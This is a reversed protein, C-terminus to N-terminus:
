QGAIEAAIQNAITAASGSSANCTGVDIAVNNTVSLVRECRSDPRNDNRITTTAVLMGDNNTVKGVQVPARGINYRECTSWRKESEALFRVADGATAFLVVAQDASLPDGSDGPTRLLQDRVTTSGSGAYAQAEAAGAIGVCAVKDEPADPPVTIDAALATSTEAVTMGTASVAINIEAPSLLLGDLTAKSVPPPSASTIASASASPSTSTGDGGGCGATLSVASDVLPM